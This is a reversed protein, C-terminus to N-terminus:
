NGAYVEELRRVSYQINFPSRNAMNALDECSLKSRDSLMGCLAEAWVQSSDHLSLRVVNEAILIAEQPIVDSILCKLGSVQAELLVIGLGEFLSPFIFVDFLNKMLVDVDDRGGLFVVNKLNLSVAKAQIEAQLPGVGTLILYANPMKPSVKKFIDILFTHNKQEAFRGVHGICIADQPLNFEILLRERKNENEQKLFRDLNIGYHLIDFPNKGFLALGAERSCALKKTSFLRILVGQFALYCKRKMSTSSNIRSTDNHSHSIRCPVGALFAIFCIGGCFFHPHAHVVDYRERKFLRFLNWSFKLIGDELSVINLKSGEKRVIDDYAGPKPSFLVFDMRFKEKDYTLIVDKLWTEIGGRDLRAPLQAVKIM